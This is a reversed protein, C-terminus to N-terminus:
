SFALSCCGSMTKALTSVSALWCSAPEAPMWDIGVRMAKLSFMRMKEWAPASGGAWSSSSMWATLATLM